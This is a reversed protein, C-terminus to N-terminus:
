QFNYLTHTWTGSSLYSSTISSFSHYSHSGTSPDMVQYLSNATLYGTILIFHGDTTGSWQIRVYVPKNAYLQNNTTTADLNSSSYTSSLSYCSSFDSQVLSLSRPQNYTFSGAVKYVHNSQTTPNAGNYNADGMAALSWHRKEMFSQLRCQHPRGVGIQCRSNNWENGLSAYCNATNGSFVRYVLLKRFKRM